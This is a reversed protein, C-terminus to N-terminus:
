FTKISAFVLTLTDREAIHYSSCSTEVTRIDCISWPSAMDELLTHQTSLVYQLESNSKTLQTRYIGEHEENIKEM